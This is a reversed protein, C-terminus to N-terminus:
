KKLVDGLAVCSYSRNREYFWVACAGSMRRGELVGVADVRGQADENNRSGIADAM